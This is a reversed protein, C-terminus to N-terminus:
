RYSSAISAGSEDPSVQFSIKPKVIGAAIAAARASKFKKGKGIEPVLEPSETKIKRILYDQSTGRSDTKPMNDIITINDCNDINEIESIRNQSCGMEEAVQKQTLGQDRL